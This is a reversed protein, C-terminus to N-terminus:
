KKAAAEEANLREIEKIMEDLPLGQASAPRKAKASDMITDFQM